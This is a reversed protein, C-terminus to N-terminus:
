NLRNFYTGHFAPPNMNYETNSNSYDVHASDPHFQYSENALDYSAQTNNDTAWTFGNNPAMSISGTPTLAPIESGQTQLGSRYQPVGSHYQSSGPAKENDSGMATRVRRTKRTKNPVDQENDSMSGELRNTPTQNDESRSRKEPSNSVTSKGDHLVSALQQTYVESARTMTKTQLYPFLLPPRYRGKARQPVQQLTGDENWIGNWSTEYKIQLLQEFRQSSQAALEM